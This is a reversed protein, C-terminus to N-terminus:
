TKRGRGLLRSVIGPRGSPGKRGRRRQRIEAFWADAAALDAVETIDRGREKLAAIFGDLFSADSRGQPKLVAIAIEAPAERLFVRALEGADGGSILVVAERMDMVLERVGEDEYLAAYNSFSDMADQWDVSGVRRSVMRRGRTEISFGM